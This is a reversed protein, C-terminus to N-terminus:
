QVLPSQKEIYWIHVAQIQVKFLLIVKWCFTFYTCTWCFTYLTWWMCSDRDVDLELFMLSLVHICLIIWNRWALSLLKFCGFSFFLINCLFMFFDPVLALLFVLLNLYYSFFTFHLNHLFPFAVCVLSSLIWWRYTGVVLFTVLLGEPLLFTMDSSVCIWVFFHLTSIM